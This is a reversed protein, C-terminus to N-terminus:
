QRELLLGYEKRLSRVEGRIDDVKAKLQAEDANNDSQARDIQARVSSTHGRGGAADVEDLQRRLSALERRQNAIATANASRTRQLRAGTAHAEATRDQELYLVDRLAGQRQQAKTESWGFLGGQTPDGTTECGTITFLSAASIALLLVPRKM